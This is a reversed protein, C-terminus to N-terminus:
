ADRPSPTHKVLVAKAEVGRKAHHQAAKAAQYHERFLIGNSQLSIWRKGKPPKIEITWWNVHSAGVTPVGSVKSFAGSQPKQKPGQYLVDANKGGAKAVVRFKGPVIRGKADILLSPLGGANQQSMAQIRAENRAVLNVIAASKQADLKEAGTGHQAKQKIEDLTKKASDAQGKIALLKARVAPDALKAQLSAAAKVTPAVKASAQVVQAVVQKAATAAQKQGAALVAKAQTAAQAKVTAAAAPVRAANAKAKAAIAQAQAKARANAADAAAKARSAAQAKAADLKQTQTGAKSTLRKASSAVHAVKKGKDIAGIAAKASGYAALAPVGVVPVAIALGTALAGVLKSKAVTKVAKGVARVLKSHGIKKATNKISKFAKAFSFGVVPGGNQQGMKEHMRQHVRAAVKELPRLDVRFELISPEGAAVLFTKAHLYNGEQWFHTKTWIGAKASSLAGAGVVQRVPIDCGVVAM